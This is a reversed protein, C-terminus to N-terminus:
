DREVIELECFCCYVRPYQFYAEPPKFADVCAKALFRHLTVDSQKEELRMLVEYDDPGLERQQLEEIIRRYDSDQKLTDERVAPLWERDPVPRYLFEHM